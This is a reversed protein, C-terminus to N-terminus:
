TTDDKEAPRHHRGPQAPGACGGAVASVIKELMPLHRRLVDTGEIQGAGVPRVFQGSAIGEDGPLCGILPIDGLRRGIAEVDASPAVRNAVAAVSGLGIDRALAGIRCATQVSWDTGDVVVLLADVRQATARGLHEIGAEMDLIVWEQRAIMMHGLLSKLFANEPCACGGGGRQVTGMVLLKVGNQDGWFKEPIDDVKPNMTFFPAPQGM